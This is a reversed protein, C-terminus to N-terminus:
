LVLSAFFVRIDRPITQTVSAPPSHHLEGQSPPHSLTTAHRILRQAPTHTQGWPTNCHDRRPRQLGALSPQVRERHGVAAGPSGDHLVGGALVSLEEHWTRKGSTYVTHRNPPTGRGIAHSNVRCKNSTNCHWLAAGHELVLRALPLHPQQLVPLRRPFASALLLLVDFAQLVPHRHQLVLVLRQNVLQLRELLQVAFLLGLSGTILDRGLVYINSLLFWEHLQPLGGAPTRPEALMMERSIDARTVM